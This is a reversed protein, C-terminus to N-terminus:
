SSFDAKWNIIYSAFAIILLLSIMMLGGGLLVQRQRILKLNSETIKLKKAM